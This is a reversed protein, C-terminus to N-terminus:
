LKVIVLIDPIDKNIESLFIKYSETKKKFDIAVRSAMIEKPEFDFPIKAQQLTKKVVELVEGKYASIWDNWDQSTITKKNYHTM